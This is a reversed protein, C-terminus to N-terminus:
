KFRKETQAEDSTTEVAAEECENWPTWDATLGM